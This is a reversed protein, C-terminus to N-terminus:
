AQYGSSAASIGPAVYKLLQGESSARSATASIAQAAICDAVCVPWEVGDDGLVVGVFREVEAQFGVHFRQPFSYQLRGRHVGTSDSLTVAKELPTEVVVMGKDGFVECRQDYGYTAGRTMSMTCVAGSPYQMMFTAIDMAGADKLEQTSSSAMAAIQTPNEGEMLWQVFDVDHPALDMFNDGGTKLFELPPVPHDGFFVRIFQIKGVDGNVVAEKVAIYGPDFRRQFGCMLKVNAAACFDFLERIVAPNDDVPKETFVPKKASAASKIVSAHTFTPATIWVADIREGFKQLADDLTNAFDCDYKDAMAEGAERNVDVICVIKARPCAALLPARVQAMRGTGVLCVKVLQKPM